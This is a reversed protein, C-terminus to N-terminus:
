DEKISKGISKIGKGIMKGAISVGPIVGTVSEIVQGRWKLADSIDSNSPTRRCRGMTKENARKANYDCNKSRKRKIEHSM